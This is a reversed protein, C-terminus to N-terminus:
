EKHESRFDMADGLIKSIDGMMQNLRMEAQFYEAAKPDKNIIEFLEQAKNLKEEDLDQGMMQMTQLEIQRKQFDDIMNKLDENKRVEEDLQKFKKYEESERLASALNHAADYVNM